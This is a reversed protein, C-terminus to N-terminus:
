GPPASIEVCPRTNGAVAAIGFSGTPRDVGTETHLCWVEATGSVRVVAVRYGLSRPTVFHVRERTRTEWPSGAPRADVTEGPLPGAGDPSGQFLVAGGDTPVAASTFEPFAPLLSCPGPATETESGAPAPAAACLQLSRDHERGLLVFAQGAVEFQEVVRPGDDAAFAAGIALLTATVALLATTRLAPPM